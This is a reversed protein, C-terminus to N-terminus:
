NLAPLQIRVRYSLLNVLDSQVHTAGLDELDDAIMEGYGIIGNIPTRLDHRLRREFEGEATDAHAVAVSSVLSKDVLEYLQRAALGIRNIDAQLEQHPLDVVNDAILDSYEILALAPTILRQRIDALLATRTTRTQLDFNDM